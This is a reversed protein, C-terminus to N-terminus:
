CSTLWVVVVCAGTRVDYLEWANVRTGGMGDGGEGAGSARGGACGVSMAALVFSCCLSALYHYHCSCHTSRRESAREILAPRPPTSVAAPPLLHLLRAVFQVDITAYHKMEKIGTRRILSPGLRWVVDGGQLLSLYPINCLM